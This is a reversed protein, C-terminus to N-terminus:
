LKGEKIKKCYQEHKTKGTITDCDLTMVYSHYVRTGKPNRGFRRASLYHRRYNDYDDFILYDHKFYNRWDIVAKNGM